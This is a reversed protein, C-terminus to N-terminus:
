GSTTFSVPSTSPFSEGSHNCADSQSHVSHFCMSCDSRKGCKKFGMNVQVRATRASQPPPPITMYTKATPDRDVLCRRRHHLVTSICPLRKDFPIVLTVRDDKQMTALIDLLQVRRFANKIISKPYGRQLLEEELTKM